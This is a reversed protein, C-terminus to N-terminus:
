HRSDSPSLETNSFKAKYSSRQGQVSKRQPKSYSEPVNSAGEISFHTEKHSGATSDQGDSDELSHNQESDDWM